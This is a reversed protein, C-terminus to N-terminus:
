HVPIRTNDRTADSEQFEIADDDSKGANAKKEMRGKHLYYPSITNENLM